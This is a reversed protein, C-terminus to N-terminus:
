ADFGRIYPTNPPRPGTEFMPGHTSQYRMNMFLTEIRRGVASYRWNEWNSEMYHNVTGTSLLLPEAHHPEKAEAALNQTGRRSDALRGPGAICSVVEAIDGLLAPEASGTM